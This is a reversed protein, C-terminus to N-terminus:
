KEDPNQIEESAQIMLEKEKEHIIPELLELTSKDITFPTVVEKGNSDLTVRSKIINSM